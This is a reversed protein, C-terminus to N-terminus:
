LKQFPENYDLNFITLKPLKEYMKFCCNQHSIRYSGSLKPYFCRNRFIGFCDPGDEAVGCYVFDLDVTANRSWFALRRNVTKCLIPLHYLYQRQRHEM